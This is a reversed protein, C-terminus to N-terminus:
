ECVNTEELAKAGLDTCENALLQRLENAFRQRIPATAANMDDCFKRALQREEYKEFRFVAIEHWNGLDIHLSHVGTGITTFRFWQGFTHGELRGVMETIREIHASYLFPKKKKEAALTPTTM